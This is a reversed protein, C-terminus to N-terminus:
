QSVDFYIGCVNRGLVSYVGCFYFVFIGATSLRFLEADGTTQLISTHLQLALKGCFNPVLYYYVDRFYRVQLGSFLDKSLPKLPLFLGQVTFVM